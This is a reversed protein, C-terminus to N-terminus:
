VFQLEVNMDQMLKLTLSFKSLPRFCVFQFMCVTIIMVPFIFWITEYGPRYFIQADVSNTQINKFCIYMCNINPSMKTHQVELSLFHTIDSTFSLKVVIFISTLALELM